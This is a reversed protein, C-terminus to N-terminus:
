VGPVGLAQGPRYHFLRLHYSLILISVLFLTHSHLSFEFIDLCSGTANKGSSALSDKPEM